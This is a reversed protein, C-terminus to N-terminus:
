DRPPKAPLCPASKARNGLSIRHTERRGRRGPPLPDRGRGPEAACAGAVARVARPAGIRRAIEGYSATAGRPIERLARWVRHQFATGRVDLPLEAGRAPADDIFALVRAVLAEFAADGTVLRARPFRHALEDRLPEADDGLLIACVGKDTAGVLAVGLSCPGSAVKIETAAGGARFQTPTMGLMRASAEYFRGSSAFGAAYIADTVTRSAPLAERARRARHAAAYEKPTVGTQEKFVRHFHWRSLQAEAALGALSPAEHASEILRCARAILAAHAPM